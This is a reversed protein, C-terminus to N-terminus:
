SEAYERHKPSIDQISGSLFDGKFPPQGFESHARFWLFDSSGLHSNNHPDQQVMVIVFAIPDKRPGISHSGRFNDAPVQFDRM